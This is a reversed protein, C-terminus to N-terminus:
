NAQQVVNPVAQGADDCCYRRLWDEISGHEVERRDVFMGLTKGILEVARIAAGLNESTGERKKRVGAEYVAM